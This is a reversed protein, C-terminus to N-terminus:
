RGIYVDDLDHSRESGGQSDLAGETVYLTIEGAIVVGFLVHRAIHKAHGRIDVGAKRIALLV